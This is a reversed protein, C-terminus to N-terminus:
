YFFSYCSLFISHSSSFYESNDMTWRHKKIQLIFKERVDVFFDKLEKSHILNVAISILNKCLEPLINDLKSAFIRDNRRVTQLILHRLINVDGDSLKKLDKLKQLFTRQIFIGDDIDDVYRITWENLMMEGLKLINDFSISSLTPKHNVDFQHYQLFIIISLKESLQSSLLYNTKILSKMRVGIDILSFDNNSNNNNANDSLLINNNTTEIFDIIFQSLRKLNDYQRLRSLTPPNGEVIEYCINRRINKSFRKGILSRVFSNDFSYYISLLEMQHSPSLLQLTLFTMEKPRELHQRISNFMRYQDEVFRKNLRRLHLLPINSSEMEELIVDNVEDMSQGDCWFQFIKRDISVNSISSARGNEGFIKDPFTFDFSIESSKM